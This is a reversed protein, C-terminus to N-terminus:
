NYVFLPRAFFSKSSKEPMKEAIEIFRKKYFVAFDEEDGLKNLEDINEFDERILKKGTLIEKLRKADIKLQFTKMVKKIADEGPTLIDRLKEENGKEFEDLAKEFDYLNVFGKDNESFVGARIRRLEAMHAGEVEKKEGLDHILKRIYTGGQVETQFLFDRNDKELIKFSKIERERIARKVSSKKPPLQMIKGVFNEDIIEQLVEVNNEKHTHMIGVYEKDHGLFFGTLKCARGLAIPLVGTVMPDLTGFHSTKRIGYKALKKHIFHSIDFSTPGTPKDINLIAFNLLEQISKEM